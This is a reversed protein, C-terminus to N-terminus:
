EPHERGHAERAMRIQEDEAALVKKLSDSVEKTELLKMDPQGAEVWASYWFSGVMIISENMRREVMNGMAQEYAKTFERSYMRM